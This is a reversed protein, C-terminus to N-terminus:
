AAKRESSRSISSFCAHLNKDVHIQRGGPNCYKLALIPIRKMPAFDTVGSGCITFNQIPGNLSSVDDESMIKIKSRQEGRRCEMSGADNLKSALFCRRTCHSGGNDQRNLLERSLQFFSREHRDIGCSCPGTNKGQLLWGDM